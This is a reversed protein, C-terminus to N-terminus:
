ILGARRALVITAAAAQLSVVGNGICRLQQTRCDGVDAALGDALKRVNSEIAPALFPFREIIDTWREDNPGPAFLPVDCLESTPRCPSDTRGDTRGDTRLLHAMSNEGKMDRAAPTPWKIDMAVTSLSVQTGKM